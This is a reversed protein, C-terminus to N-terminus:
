RAAPQPCVTNMLKIYESMPPLGVDTRRQDVSEAAEIARPKWGAEGHCEGQTGYRQPDHTRDYLYAYDKKSVEGTQVLPEIKALMERQFAPDLDAHQVLLWAARAGDEGVMSKGPWGVKAIIEKIRPLNAQDVQFMLNGGGPKDTASHRADQDRRAMELLQERIDPRAVTEAFGSAPLALALLLMLKFNM